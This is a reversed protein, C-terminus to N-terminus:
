KGGPLSLAYILPDKGPERTLSINVGFRDKLTAVLDKVALALDNARRALPDQM